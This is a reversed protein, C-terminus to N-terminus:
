GPTGPRKVLVVAAGAVVLVGAGAAVWVWLPTPGPAATAPAAAPAPTAFGALVIGVQQGGALGQAQYMRVPGAESGQVGLDSLGEPTAASGDAPVFLAVRETPAPTSFAVSAQGGQVPVFYSYRYSTRGPMLPMQVALEGGEFTTCCWGHFGADLHVDRAGTPLAVRVTTKKGTSALEGGLWTSDAPNEISLVESVHVADQTPDAMVQRMTVRWAPEAESVDYVEVEVSANPTSPDMSPGTEQYTVGAHEIQVVPQIGVSVPLDGVMALGSEDLQTDITRFLQRRHFLHVHVTSGAPDVGGETGQVVRIALTGTPEGDAAEIPPAGPQAFAVAVASALAAVTMWRRAIM